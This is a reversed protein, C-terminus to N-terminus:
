RVILTEDAPHELLLDPGPDTLPLLRVGWPLLAGDLRIEMTRTAPVSCPALRALEQGAAVVPPPATGPRAVLVLEPVEGDSRVRVRLTRRRWGARGVTYAVWPDGRRVTTPEDPYALDATDSDDDPEEEDGAEEDQAGPIGGTQAPDARLPGIPEAAPGALGDAGAPGGVAPQPGTPAPLPGTGVGPAGAPGPLGPGAPPVPVAPPLPRN